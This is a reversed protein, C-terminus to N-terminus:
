PYILIISVSDSKKLLKAKAAITLDKILVGDAGSVNIARAATSTLTYGNGDFVTPQSLVLIESLEIDGSLEIVGGEAAAAKLEDATGVKVPEVKECVFSFPSFSNTTFTVIGIAVNYDFSTIEQDRHILKTLNYGAGVNVSVTYAYNSDVAKGDHKLDIDMSVTANGEADTVVTKDSVTLDYNGAPAGAPIDIAVDEAEVSAAVNEEKIANDLAVEPYEADNDYDNGLDDSESALQTTVLQVVFSGGVSKDQYENGADDKMKLVITYVEVNNKDDTTDAEGEKKDFLVGYAAGDEDAMLSALTGVPTAAALADRTVTAEGEMMYVDIVDALNVEGAAPTQAPIVNLKFKLDLSGKNEIKVYRVETYGPEWLQYNFISGKSADSWDTEGVKKYELTVDLTGTKIINGASTVSDTFWAYTTGLLMTFCILLSIVSVFLARKTTKTAMKNRRENDIVLGKEKLLDFRM